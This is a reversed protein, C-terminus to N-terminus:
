IAAEFRDALLDLLRRTVSLVRPRTRETLPVAILLETVPERGSQVVLVSLAGVGDESRGSPWTVTWSLPVMAHGFSEVIPLGAAVEVRAGRGLAEAGVEALLMVADPRRLEDVVARFPRDVYATLWATLEESPGDVVRTPILGPM